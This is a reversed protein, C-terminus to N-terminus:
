AALRHEFINNKPVTFEPKFQGSDIRKQLYPFDRVLQGHLHHGAILPQYPPKPKKAAVKLSPVPEIVADYDAACFFPMSYREHGYNVVRHPTAKFLGNSWVEMMDGLNIIYADDKVPVDLWQNDRNLVQLGPAAQHLLTLCEYDTHAGMNMDGMDTAAKAAIEPNELYHLLRLQSIPKQMFQAFHYKPAHLAIEFGRLLTQALDSVQRYYSYVQDQFGPLAPWVNSGLLKHHSYYDSDDPSLDLALDFAEYHRKKEDAYNGKETIPVYGRHNPSNGIYCQLKQHEPLAFFRAAQEYVANRRSAKIQHGVIYLFGVEAAAKALEEAVKRKDAQSAKSHYLPEINVTPLVDPERRSRTQQRLHAPLKQPLGSM